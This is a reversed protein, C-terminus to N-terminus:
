KGADAKIFTGVPVAIKAAPTKGTFYDHIADITKAGIQRGGALDADVARADDNARRGTRDFGPDRQDGFVAFRLPEHEPHRHALVCREGMEVLEHM